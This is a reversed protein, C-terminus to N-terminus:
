FTTLLNQTQSFITLFGTVVSNSITDFASKIDLFLLMPNEVDPISKLKEVLHLTSIAASSLTRGPVFGFQSIPVLTELHSNVQKSYIKTILKYLVELLSIPRFDKCDRPKAIKPIFILKRLKLWALNPADFDDSNAIDNIAQTFYFPFLNFIFTYFLKGRGTPGPASFSKMSALADKISDANITERLFANPLSPFFDALSINNKQLLWNEFNNNYSVSYGLQQREVDFDPLNTKKQYM